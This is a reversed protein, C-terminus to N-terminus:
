RLMPAFYLMECAPHTCTVTYDLFSTSPDFVLLEQVSSAESQARRVLQPRGKPIALARFGRAGAGAGSIGARSVLWQRPATATPNFCAAARMASLSAMPAVM